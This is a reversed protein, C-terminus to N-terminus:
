ETKEQMEMGAMPQGALAQLAAGSLLLGIIWIPKKM